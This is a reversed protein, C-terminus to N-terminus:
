SEIDSHEASHGGKIRESCDHPMDHIQLAWESVLRKEVDVDKGQPFGQENRPRKFWGIVEPPAAQCVLYLCSWFCLGNAQVPVILHDHNLSEPIGFPDHFELSALVALIVM